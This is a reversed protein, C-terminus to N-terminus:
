RTVKQDIIRQNSYFWNKKKKCNILVDIIKLNAVLIFIFSTKAFQIKNIKKYNV